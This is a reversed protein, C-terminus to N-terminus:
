KILVLTGEDKILIAASDDSKRVFVNGNVTWYFEYGNAKAKQKANWFLRRRFKTLNKNICLRHERYGECCLM